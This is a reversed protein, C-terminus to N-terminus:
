AMSRNKYLSEREICLSRNMRLPAIISLIQRVISQAPVMSIFIHTLRQCGGEAINKDGQINSRYAGPEM